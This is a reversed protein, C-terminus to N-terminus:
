EFRLVADGKRVFVGACLPQPRFPALPRCDDGIGFEVGTDLSVNEVYLSNNIFVIRFRVNDWHRHELQINSRCDRGLTVFFPVFWYEHTGHLPNVNGAKAFWKKWWDSEALPTSKLRKLLVDTYLNQKFHRDPKICISTLGTLSNISYLDFLLEQPFSQPLNNLLIQELFTEYHPILQMSLIKAFLVSRASATAVDNKFLLDGSGKSLAQEDLITGGQRVDVLYVGEQHIELRAHERSFLGSLIAFENGHDNEEQTGPQIALPVGNQIDLEPVDRGFVLNQGGTLFFCKAGSETMCLRSSQRPADPRSLYPVKRAIGDDSEFSITTVSDPVNEAQTDAMEDVGLLVNEGVIEIDANGFKGIDITAARSAHITVKRRQGAEKPDTVDIRFDAHYYSPDIFGPSQDILIVQCLYQGPEDLRLHQYFYWDNGTKKLDKPIQQLNIQPVRLYLLPRRAGKITFMPVLPVGPKLDIGWDIQLTPASRESTEDVRPLPKEERPLPSAMAMEETPLPALHPLTEFLDPAKLPAEDVTEVSPVLLERLQSEDESSCFGMSVCDDFADKFTRGSDIIDKIIGQATELSM